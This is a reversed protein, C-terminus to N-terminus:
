YVKEWGNAGNTRSSYVRSERVRLRASLSVKLLSPKESAIIKVRLSKKAKHESLEVM